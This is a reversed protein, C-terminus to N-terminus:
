DSKTRYLEQVKNYTLCDSLSLRTKNGVHVKRSVIIPIILSKKRFISIMKMVSNKPIKSDLLLFNPRANNKLKDVLDRCGKVLVIELNMRAFMNQYHKLYKTSTDAIFVCGGQSEDLKSASYKQLAKRIEHAMDEAKQYRDQPKKMVAKQYIPILMKELRNLKKEEPITIPEMITAKALRYGSANPFPLQRTIMQYLMIGLAWIDTREDITEQEWQEPSMYPASGILDETATFPEPNDELIKVVGFDAVKPTLKKSLLINSPKLDRHIINHKHAFAVGETVQQLIEVATYLSYNVKNMYRDLSNPYYDMIFYHNKPNVVLVRVINKHKLRSLIDMEKTFRISAKHSRSDLLKLAQYKKNKPLNNNRVMWVIAQGGQGIQKVFEYGPPLEIHQQENESLM